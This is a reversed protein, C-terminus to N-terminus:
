FPKGPTQHWDPRKSVPFPQKRSAKRRAGLVPWTTGITKAKIIEMSASPPARKQPRGVGRGQLVGNATRWHRPYEALRQSGGWEAAEIIIYHWKDFHGAPTTPVTDVIEFFLDRVAALAEDSPNDIFAAWVVRHREILDFSPDDRGGM